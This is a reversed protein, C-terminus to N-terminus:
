RTARTRVQAPRFREVGIQEPPWGVAARMVLEAGGPLLELVGALDAPLEAAIVRCAEDLLEQRPVDTLALQGLRAVAQQQGLRM